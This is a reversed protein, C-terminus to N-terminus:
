AFGGSPLGMDSWAQRAVRSRREQVRRVRWDHWARLRHGVGRAFTPHGAIVGVLARCRPSAHRNAVALGERVVDAPEMLVARSVLTLVLRDTDRSLRRAEPSDPGFAARVQDERMRILGEARTWTFASTPEGPTRGQILAQPEPVYGVCGTGALRFWMDKDCGLGYRAEDFDGVREYAERRVMTTAAMVPSYWGEALARRFAAGDMVAPFPRVDHALPHGSLDVVFHATHVFAMAAHSELLHASRELIRPLYHDHDHYICVFTGRAQRVLWNWNGYIGLNTAHRHYRIRPDDFAAVTEATDDTSADDGVIAEWDLRTQAQLALLTGALSRARNRTPVCVTIAPTM